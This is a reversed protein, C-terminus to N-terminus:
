SNNRRVLIKSLHVFNLLFFFCSLYSLTKCHSTNAGSIFSEIHYTKIKMNCSWSRQFCEVHKVCFPVDLLFSLRKSTLVFNEELVFKCDLCNLIVQIPRLFDFHMKFFIFHKSPRGKGKKQNSIQIVTDFTTYNISTHILHINDIISTVPTYQICTCIYWECFSM